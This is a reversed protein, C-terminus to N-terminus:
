KNEEFFKKKFEEFRTLMEPNKLLEFLKKIRDDTEQKIIEQDEQYAKITIPRGCNICYRANPNNFIGCSCKKPKNNEEKKSVVGKSKLYAERVQTNSLHTYNQLQNSGNTWGMRNCRVDPTLNPADISARSHRFWHVNFKKHLGSKVVCRKVLKVAGTYRLPYIQNKNYSKGRLNEKYWFPADMNNKEPHLDLYRILYPVSDLIDVNRELTKSVPFFVTGIGEKNVKFHKVYMNLIEGVRAGTEHLLAMFAKEKPTKCGKELVILIEDNTIVSTPDIKVKKYSTNIKKVAKYLKNAMNRIKSNDDELRPDFENFWNFFAKIARKYDSKASESMEGKTRLLKYETILSLVKHLDLIDLKDLDKNIDLAIRHLQYAMKGRREIETGKSALYEIYLGILEKNRDSLNTSQRLRIIHNEASKKKFPYIEIEM